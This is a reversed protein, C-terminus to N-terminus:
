QETTEEKSRALYFVEFGQFLWPPKTGEPVRSDGLHVTLIIRDMHYWGLEVEDAEIGLLRLHGALLQCYPEADAAFSHSQSPHTGDSLKQQDDPALTSKHKAFLHRRLEGFETIYRDRLEADELSVFGAPVNEGAMWDEVSEYELHRASM